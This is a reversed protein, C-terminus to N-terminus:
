TERYNHAEDIFIDRFSFAKEIKEDTRLLKIENIVSSAKKISYTKSIAKNIRKKQLEITLIEGEEKQAVYVDKTCVESIQTRFAKQQTENSVIVLAPKRDGRLSKFREVILAAGCTK